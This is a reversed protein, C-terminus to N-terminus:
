SRPPPRIEILYADGHREVGAIREDPAAALMEEATSPLYAAKGDELLAKDEKLVEEGTAGVVATRLVVYRVGLRDIREFAAPDPFSELDNAVGEFGEPSYGSLGNVRENWDLTSLLSRPAEIYAQLYGDSPNAMPLELVVGPPREALAQNVAVFRPDTPLRITGPAVASEALVALGLVMSAIVGTRPRFRKLLWVLGLAALVALVCQPVIVFRATARVAELGPVVQELARYPMAVERGFVEKYRGFALVLMVLGAGVMVLLLTTDRRELLRPRSRSRTRDGRAWRRAGMLAVIGVAGLSLAVVGPFLRNEVGRNFARDEFPPINPLLYAGQDPALFDGLHASLTPEADRSFYPDALVKQYQWVVPAVVLLAVTGGAALGAVYRGLPRPRHVIGYGVLVLAATLVMLVGYYSSTVALAALALGLALADRMRSLRCYRAVLLLILPVMWGTTSLQWHGIHSLRPAAFTFTLAAVVSPGHRGTFFLALRYTFWLSLTWSILFVLNFALAISGTVREIAWYLPVLALLPDSWALTNEAPHFANTDWIAAFGEPAAHAVWRLIWINLLADGYDGPVHTTLRSVQPFTMAVVLVAFLLLLARRPATEHPDTAEEPVPPATEAPEAQILEDTSVGFTAGM